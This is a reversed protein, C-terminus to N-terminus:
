ALDDLMKRFDDPGYEDLSRKVLPVGDRLAPVQSEYSQVGEASYFVGIPIRDDPDFALEIARKFNTPDYSGDEAIDYVRDRYWKNTNIRNYIVCDQLVDVLAYGPHEIAGKIMEAVHRPDGSFSRAVYGAGATIALALPNIPADISGEPSTSTVWGVESTPSYQGKTLAYVHNDEVIHTMDVNRRAMHILHNGGIGYGDGDGTVAIVCLDSNALKAGMAVPLARGHVSNFENALLYHPLKSGCGIGSTFLVEHPAINLDALARKVANLIGFDGCGPCWTSREDTNFDKMTVQATEVSAM